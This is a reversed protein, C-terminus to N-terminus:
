GGGKKPFNLLFITENENWEPQPALRARRSFRERPTTKLAGPMGAATM